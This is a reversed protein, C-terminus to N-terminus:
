AVLDLLRAKVLVELKSHAALKCEVNRLHTRVTVYSIGLRSAIQRSGVGAAMLALVEAERHTLRHRPENMARRQKLLNAITAPRILTAGHAVSRLSDIISRTPASKYLVASAGAEVAAILVADSEDRTLFVVKAACGAKSMARAADVATGDDLRFDLIAVDPNLAKARKATEAVSSLNGVVVMDTQRNLLAELADAVLRHNEVIAIRIPPSEGAM